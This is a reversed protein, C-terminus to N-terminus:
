KLEVIGTRRGITGSAAFVSSSSIEAWCTRMSDSFVIDDFLILGGAKMMPMLIELQQHVVERTHIGDILAIDATAPGILGPGAHEFTDVTLTFRPSVTGLNDRALLTWDPNPDFTYLHGEGIGALWYMGSVGFATGIEIVQPDKRASALWSFFRGTTANIRVQQPKRTERTGRSYNKIEKYGSWLPRDGVADTEKTAREILAHVPLLSLEVPDGLRQALWGGRRIFNVAVSTTSHSPPSEGPQSGQTTKKASDM